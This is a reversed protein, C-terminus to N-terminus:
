WYIRNALIADISQSVSAPNNLITKVPIKKLLHATEGNQKQKDSFLFLIAAAGIIVLAIPKMQTHM